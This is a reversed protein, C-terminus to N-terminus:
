FDDDEFDDDIDPTASKKPQSKPAPAEEEATDDDEYDDFDDESDNEKTFFQVIAQDTWKPAAATDATKALEIAEEVIKDSDLEMKMKKPNGNADKQTVSGGFVGSEAAAKFQFKQYTPEECVVLVDVESIDADEQLDKVSQLRGKPMTLVTLEYDEASTVRGKSNTEYVLVPTVYVVQPDGCHQVAVKYAKSDPNEPAQFKAWNGTAKDSYNFVLVKKMAVKKTKPHVLVFSIRAREGKDSMKFKPATSEAEATDVDEYQSWFDDLNASM